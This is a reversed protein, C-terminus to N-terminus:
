KKAYLVTTQPSYRSDYDYRFDAHRYERLLRYQSALLRQELTPATDGHSACRVYADFSLVFDANLRQVEQHYYLSPDEIFRRTQLGDGDCSEREKNVAAAEAFPSCMPGTLELHLGSPPHLFSYGPFSYCPAMVLVRVTCPELPSCASEQLDYRRSHLVSALEAMASEPGAQHRTLLYVGVSVNIVSAIVVLIWGVRRKRRVLAAGCKSTITHPHHMWQALTIGVVAHAAPLVPLLFRFEQHSSCVHLGIPYLLPLLAMIRFCSSSLFLDGRDKGNVGPGSQDQSDSASVLEPPRGARWYAWMLAPGTSGMVTPLGVSFNWHWSHKGFLGSVGEFVNRVIFNWPSVVACGYGLSDVIAGVCFGAVAVVLVIGMFRVGKRDELGLSMLIPAGFLVATPRAYCQLFLLFLALACRASCSEIGKALFTPRMKGYLLYLVVILLVTESSNALTRTSCYLWCWNGLHLVVTLLAADERYAQPLTAVNHVLDYLLVDSFAAFGGQLLRPGMSYWMPSNLGLGRLAQFLWVYVQINLFSRIRYDPEWEWTMMGQGFVQRYAPEVSQYYEDPVFSTACLM